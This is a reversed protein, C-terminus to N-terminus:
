FLEQKPWFRTAATGELASQQDANLAPFFDIGTAAEIADVSTICYRPYKGERTEQPMMVAIVRLKDKHVGAIVKYFASPVCVKSKKKLKQTRDPVVGTIVWMTDGVGSLDDAVIQELERWPGRNLEPKQPAINSMLFTERQAAKGYRLTILRNPALHGRDYGTSTYDEPAATRPAQSDPMFPPRDPLYNLKNTTPVEYASWLPHGLSPSWGAWYGKRKLIVLDKGAKSADVIRPEGFPFVGKPKAGTYDIAVDRGTLGYADTLDATVAGLSELLPELSGFKARSEPSLHAFINGFTLLVLITVVTFWRTRRLRAVFAAHNQGAETLNKPKRKRAM